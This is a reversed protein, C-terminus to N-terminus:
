EKNKNKTITITPCCRKRENDFINNNLVLSRKLSNQETVFRM